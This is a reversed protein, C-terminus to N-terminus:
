EAPDEPAPAPTTATPAPTTATPQPATATPAPATPTATKAPTPAPAPDDQRQEDKQKDDKDKNDDKAPDDSKNNSSGGITDGITTGNSGDLSRGSVLELGSIAALSLLLVAVTTALITKWHLRKRPTEVIEGSRVASGDVEAAEEFAEAIDGDQVSKQIVTGSTTQVILTKGKDLTRGYLATSVPAVFSAVAVGILTGAVGLSSAIWAATVAALVSAMIQFWSVEGLLSRRESM